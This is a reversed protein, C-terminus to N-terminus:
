PTEERDVVGVCRSLACGMLCGVAGHEEPAHGCTCRVEPEPREDSVDVTAAPAAAVERLELKLEGVQISWAGVERAMAALAPAHKLLGLVHADREQSQLIKAAEMAGVMDIM